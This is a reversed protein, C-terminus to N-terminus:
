GHRPCFGLFGKSKEPVWNVFGSRMDGAIHDSKRFGSEPSEYTPSPQTGSALSGCLLDFLM